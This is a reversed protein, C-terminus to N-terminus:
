VAENSYFQYILYGTYLSIQRVFGIYLNRVQKYNVARQPNNQLQYVSFSKMLQITRPLLGTPKSIELEKVAYYTLQIELNSIDESEFFGVTPDRIVSVVLKPKINESASPHDSLVEVDTLNLQLYNYLDKRIEFVKM